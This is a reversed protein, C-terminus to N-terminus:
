HGGIFGQLANTELTWEVESGEKAREVDPFKVIWMSASSFLMRGSSDKVLFPLGGTDANIDAQLFGSLVDNSSAGQMLTLTIRASLDETSTRLGEGDAGKQLQFFDNNYTITLFTGDGYGSIPAGGFSVSVESARYTKVAM